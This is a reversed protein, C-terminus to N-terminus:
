RVFIKKHFSNEVQYVRKSNIVAGSIIYRMYHVAPLKEGLPRKGWLDEGALIGVGMAWLLHLSVRIPCLNYEWRKGEKDAQWWTDCERPLPM